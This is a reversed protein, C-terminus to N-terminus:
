SQELEQSVAKMINFYAQNNFVLLNDITDINKASSSLADRIAQPTTSLDILLKLSESARKEALLLKDLKMASLIAEKNVQPNPDASDIIDIADSVLRNYRSWGDKTM